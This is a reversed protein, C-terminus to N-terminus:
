GAGLSEIGAELRDHFSHELSQVASLNAVKKITHRDIKKTENYLSDFIVANDDSHDKVM